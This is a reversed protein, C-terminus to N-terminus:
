EQDSCRTGKIIFGKETAEYTLGLTETIVSLVTELKENSFNATIRCEEIASDKLKIEVKYSESLNKIVDILRSNIFHFDRGSATNVISQIKKESKIYLAKETAKIIIESGLSDFLLVIGEDVKVRITDQNASTYVMFKTGIDRIFVKGADITLPLDQKQGVSFYASGDLHLLRNKKGFGADATIKTNPLMRIDTSDSLMIKKETNGSTYEMPKNLKNNMILYLVGVIGMLVIFVAAIRMFSMGLRFNNKKGSGNIRENVKGWASDTNIVTSHHKGGTLNFSKESSAFYDLNERSEMKWEDLMIAEEPSAEGSLYKAILEDINNM